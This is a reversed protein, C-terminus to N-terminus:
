AYFTKYICNDLKEKSINEKTKCMDYKRIADLVSEFTEVEKKNPLAIKYRKNDLLSHIALHKVDFNRETMGFYQAYLQYRYGDYINMVKRKREILTKTKIDYIDIKGVLNYRESYIPLAQLYRKSSSYTQSDISKHAHRGNIQPSEHYLLETFNEYLAHYFISKPSFIFDNIKSIQIADYM